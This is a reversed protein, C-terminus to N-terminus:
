QSPNPPFTMKKCTDCSKVKSLYQEKTLSRVEDSEVDVLTYFHTKLSHSSHKLLIVTSDFYLEQCNFQIIQSNSSNEDKRKLLEYSTIGHMRIEGIWYDSVLHEYNFEEHELWVCSGALIGTLILLYIKSRIKMPGAGLYSISDM